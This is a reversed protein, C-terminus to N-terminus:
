RQVVVSELRARKAPPGAGAGVDASADDSIGIMNLIDEALAKYLVRSAHVPDETSWITEGQITLSKV